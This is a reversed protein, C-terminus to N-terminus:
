QSVCLRDTTSQRLRGAREAPLHTYHVPTLMHPPQPKGWVVGDEVGLLPVADVAVGGLRYPGAEAASVHRAPAVDLLVGQLVELLLVVRQSHLNIFKIHKTIQAVVVDQIIVGGSVELQKTTREAGDLALAILDGRAAPASKAGGAGGRVGEHRRAGTLQLQPVLVSHKGSEPM